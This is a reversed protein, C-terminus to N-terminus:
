VVGGSQPDGAARRREIDAMIAAREADTYRTWSSIQDITRLCGKCERTVRDIICVNICPSQM